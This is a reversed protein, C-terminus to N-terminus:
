ELDILYSVQPTGLLRSSDKLHNQRKHFSSFRQGLVGWTGLSEEPLYSCTSM